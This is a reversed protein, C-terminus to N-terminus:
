RNETRCSFFLLFLDISFQVHLFAFIVTEDYIWRRWVANFDIELIYVMCCAMCHWKVRILVAKPRTKFISSSGRNYMWRTKQAWFFNLERLKTSKLILSHTHTHTLLAGSFVAYVCLSVIIWMWLQCESFEQRQYICTTMATTPQSTTKQTCVM